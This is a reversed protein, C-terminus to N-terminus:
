VKKLDTSWVAMPLEAPWIDSKCGSVDVRVTRNPIHAAIADKFSEVTSIGGFVGYREFESNIIQVSDGLSLDMGDADKFGETVATM